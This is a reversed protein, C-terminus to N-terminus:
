EINFCKYVEKKVTEYDLHRVRLSDARESRVSVRIRCTKYFYDPPFRTLRIEGVNEKPCYIECTRFGKNSKLFINDGLKVTGHNYEFLCLYAYCFIIGSAVCTLFM